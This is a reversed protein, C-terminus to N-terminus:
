ETTPGGDGRPGRQAAEDLWRVAWGVGLAVQRWVDAYMRLGEEMARFAQEVPAMGVEATADLQVSSLDFGKVPGSGSAWIHDM